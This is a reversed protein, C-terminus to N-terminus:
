NTICDAMILKNNDGTFIECIKYYAEFSVFNYIINREMWNCKNEWLDKESIM